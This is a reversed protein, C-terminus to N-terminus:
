LNGWCCPCYGTYLPSSWAATLMVTLVAAYGALMIRSERVIAQEEMLPIFRREEARLVGSARRLIGSVQSYWYPLASLYWMYQVWGRPLQILEPDRDPDNTYSHHDTHEYRFFRPPIFLLFGCVAALVTCLRRSRFATYHSCEHQLAFHHVMVVGHVFMAPLLWFSDQSFAVLSGTLSLLLLWGALHVLGPRNSRQMLAKLEQRSILVTQTGPAHKVSTEQAIMGAM